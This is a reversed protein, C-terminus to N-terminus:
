PYGVLEIWMDVSETKRHFPLSLCYLIDIKKPARNNCKGEGMRRVNVGILGTRKKNIIRICRKIKSYPDKTIKPPPRPRAARIDVILSEYSIAMLMYLTVILIITVILYIFICYM